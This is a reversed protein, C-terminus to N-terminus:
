TGHYYCVWHYPHSPIFEGHLNWAKDNSGCLVSTVLANDMIKRSVKKEVNGRCEGLRNEGHFGIKLKIFIKYFNGYKGGKVSEFEVAKM